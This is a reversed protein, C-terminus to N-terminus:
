ALDGDGISKRVIFGDGGRLIEALNEGSSLGRDAVYIVKGLRKGSERMERVAERFRPQESQNGPYIRVDMPIMDRDSLLGVGVIPEPRGENSPGKRRFGDDADIEFYFNTGDYRARTMDLGYAKETGRFALDRIQEWSAGILELCRYMQDESFGGGGLLYKSRQAYSSCKSDADVVKSAM